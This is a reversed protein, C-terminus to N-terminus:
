ITNKAFYAKATEADNAIQEKLKELSPFKLEDRIKGIFEIKIEQGYLQGSYDFIYAEITKAGNNEVTPRQGINLVARRWCNDAFARAIYVGNRPVLKGADNIVLNATPFGLKRGLQQGEAVTGAITYRYNLMTNAMAVDGSLLANRIKTSSIPIGDILLAEAKQTAFGLKAGLSSMLSYDGAGKYGFRHDYGVVVLKAGLGQVLIQSIYDEAGLLSFQETFPLIVLHKIGTESLKAIKEGISTLHKMKSSGGEFCMRPHPWFSLAAPEAGLLQAQKITEAIVHRHGLHVGDFMGITLASGSTSFSEIGHHIQMKRPMLFFARRICPKFPPLGPEFRRGRSGCDLARVLQAVVVM